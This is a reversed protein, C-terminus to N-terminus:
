AVKPGGPLDEDASFARGRSIPTRFSRFYEVSVQASRFQEVVDGGTYNMVGNRFATVDELVDSQDHWHRFKAPSAAAFSGQPTTNMLMVLRDPEAFPGPKLLVANVVSFIATNAGIGLTLAALATITFGPNELFMRISHRVDKLFTDM